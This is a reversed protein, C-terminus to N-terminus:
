QEGEQFFDTIAGAKLMDMLVLTAANRGASVKGLNTANRPQLRRLLNIGDKTFMLQEIGKGRAVAGATLRAMFGPDRSILNISADQISLPLTTQQVIGGKARVQGNLINRLLAIGKVATKEEEPTLLGAMTSRKVNTRFAQTFAQVDLTGAMAPNTAAQASAVNRSAEFVGQKLQELLAEGGDAKRLIGAARRILVPDTNQLNSILATPNGKSSGFVIGLQEELSQVNRGDVIYQDRATRLRDLARGATSGTQAEAANGISDKLSASLDGALVQQQGKVSDAFERSIDDAKSIIGSDASKWRNVTKWWRDLQKITAGGSKTATDVENILRRFENSWPIEQLARGEMDTQVDMIAKRFDMPAYLKDDGAIDKAAQVHGDWTRNKVAKLQGVRKEFQKFVNEVTSYFGKNLQNTPRYPIGLKSAIAQVADEGKKALFEQATDGAADAEMKQVTPSGSAMGWTIDVGFEDGLAFADGAGKQKAAALKKGIFNKAGLFASPVLNAGVGLVAGLSATGLREDIREQTTTAKTDSGLWGWLAGDAAGFALARPATTILGTAVKATAAGGGMSLGISAMLKGMKQKDEAMSAIEREEVPRGLVRSAVDQAVQQTAEHLNEKSVQAKQAWNALTESGTIGAAFDYVSQGVEYAMEGFGGLLATGAVVGEAANGILQNIEQRQPSVEPASPTAPQGGSESEFGAMLGAANEAEEGQLEGSRLAQELVAYEEKTIAM